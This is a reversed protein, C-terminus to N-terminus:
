KKKAGIKSEKGALLNAINQSHRYALLV